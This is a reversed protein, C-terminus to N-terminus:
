GKPVIVGCDDLLEPLGGADTAIVPVGCAMAEAAAMGFSEEFSPQVYLDCSALAAEMGLCRGALVFSHGLKLADIRRQLRQREPGEGWVVFRLNPNRKLAEAAGELLVAHGKVSRLNGANGVLVTHEAEAHPFLQSIWDRRMAPNGPSFRMTDVGNRIVNIQD